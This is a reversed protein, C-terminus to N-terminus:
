SVIKQYLRDFLPNSPTVTRYVNLTKDYSFIKVGLPSDDEIYYYDGSDTDIKQAKVKKEVPPECPDAAEIDRFYDETFLAKSTPHCVRCKQLCKSGDNNDACKGRGGDVHNALCEISVEQLMQFFENVLVADELSEEYLEEDTTREDPLTAIYVFPTVTQEDESLGVHSDTRAGRNIIQRIRGYVWYPEMVHVHRIYKLDLGEAGTASVLILDIDHGHKNSPNVWALRIKERIDPDVEGSIITFRRQTRTRDNHLQASDVDSKTDAAGGIKRRAFSKASVNVRPMHPGEAGGVIANDYTNDSVDVNETIASSYVPVIEGDPTATVQEWGRHRLFVAFAGLGGASTFQSYVLGAQDPRADINQAMAVFKPSTVLQPPIESLNANQYQRPPAYNSFQRSKVRYTSAANSKPKNMAPTNDVVADQIRARYTKGPTKGEIREQERALMYSVSQESEMQVKVLQVPDVSPMNADITTSMPQADPPLGAGPTSDVGVYSVLGFLRNQLKQRNKVSRDVTDVYLSKFDKYLPPLLDGPGGHLMNFCPVLEFPDSAIPTGSMPFFKCKPSKRVLDYVGLANKSGNTIARFLNHAEDVILCCNNLSSQTALKGMKAELMADFEGADAGAARNMQDIMNSANMSVFGFNNNIWRNLDSTSMNGLPWDPDHDHRLKVYKHITGRMNEQLSKSTLMIIKYQEVLDIAIAVALLTKGLGMSHYILFGKAGNVVNQAYSRAMNQYFKLFSYQSDYKATKFYELLQLPFDTSNRDLTTPM